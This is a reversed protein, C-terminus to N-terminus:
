ELYGLKEKHRASAEQLETIWAQTSAIANLHKESIREHAASLQSHKQELDHHE